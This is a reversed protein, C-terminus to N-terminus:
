NGHDLTAYADYYRQDLTDAIYKLASRHEGVTMTAARGISTLGIEACIEPYDAILGGMEIQAEHSLPASDKADQWEKYSSYGQQKWTQVFM